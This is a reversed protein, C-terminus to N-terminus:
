KTYRKVTKRMHKRKNNYLKRKYTGGQRKKRQKRPTHNVYPNHQMNHPFLYEFPVAELCQRDCSGSNYIKCGMPTGFLTEGRADQKMQQTNPDYKNTIRIYYQHERNHFDYNHNIILEQGLKLDLAISIIYPNWIIPAKIVHTPKGNAAAIWDKRLIWSVAGSAEMIMGPQSLVKRLIQFMIAKGLSTNNNCVASVKSYYERQQVLVFARTVYNWMSYLCPYKTFLETMTLLRETLGADSYTNRYMIYITQKQGESLDHIYMKVIPLDPVRQYSNNFNYGEITNNSILLSNDDMFSNNAAAMNNPASAAMNNAAAAAM